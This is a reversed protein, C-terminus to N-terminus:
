VAVCANYADRPYPAICTTKVIGVSKKISVLPRRVRVKATHEREAWCEQFVVLIFCVNGKMHTNKNAAPKDRNFVVPLAASRRPGTTKYTCMTAESLYPTAFQCTDLNM